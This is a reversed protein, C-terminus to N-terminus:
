KEDIRFRDPFKKGGLALLPDCSVNKATVQGVVTLQFEIFCM